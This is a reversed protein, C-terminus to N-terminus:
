DVIGAAVCEPSAGVTISASVTMAAVAERVKKRMEDIAAETIAKDLAHTANKVAVEVRRAVIQEILKHGDICEMRERVVGLLYEDMKQRVVAADITIKGIEANNRPDNAIGVELGTNGHQAIFDIKNVASM